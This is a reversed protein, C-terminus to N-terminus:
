MYVKTYNVNFSLEDRGGVDCVSSTRESDGLKPHYFDPAYIEVITGYASCAGLCSNTTVDYYTFVESVPSV